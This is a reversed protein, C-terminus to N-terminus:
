AGTHAAGWLLPSCFLASSLLPSSLARLGRGQRAKPAGGEQGGREPRACGQEPPGRPFWRVCACAFLGTAVGGLM